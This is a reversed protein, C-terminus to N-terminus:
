SCFNYPPWPGTFDIIFGQKKFEGMTNDILNQVERKGKKDLMISCNIFMGENRGTLEKGLLRSSRIDKCFAKVEDILDNSTNMIRSQVKEDLESDFKKRLMFSVGKPKGGIGEEFRRIIDGMCNAKFYEKDCYIKISWEEFGQLKQLGMKFDDYKEKLIDNVRERSKFITLFKMPIIVSDKNLEILIKMFNEAKEVLWVADEGHKNINEEGYEDLSVDSVIGSLDNYMIKYMRNKEDMSPISSFDRNISDTICYLLVGHSEM